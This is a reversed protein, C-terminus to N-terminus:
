LNKIFEVSEDGHLQILQLKAKETIDVIQEVSENVFVGVKRTHNIKSLDDLSLHDLVYRPSKSYFIFGLFDIKLDILEDIQDLKTLGCVKIQISNEM